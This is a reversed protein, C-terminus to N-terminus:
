NSVYNNRFITEVEEIESETKERNWGLEQSMISACNEIFDLGPDGLTGAETRRFIVDSLKLAMEKRISHVIEAKTILSTGYVTKGLKQDEIIYRLVEIYATGYNHILHYITKNSIGNTIKRTEYNIFESLNEINGGYVPTCRTNSKSPTKESKGIVQKIVKESVDRATTLKVGLVTILGHIGEDKEHDYIKYQKTLVVDNNVTRKDMPLLGGYIYRVDERSLKIDTNCSNFDNILNCVIEEEVKFKDPQGEYPLHLTGIISCNRWPLVILLRSRTNSVTNDDNLLNQTNIALANKPCFKSTIINLAISPHFRKEFKTSKVLALVKDIWPGAANVTIKARIDFVKNDIEDEVTVGKVINNNELFGTVKLYNAIDAGSKEASLLFSLLLRESNYVYCDYWIAGGTLGQKRVEPFLEVCESRSIVKGCPIRKQPDNSKNRDLSILDNLLLAVAMVSKGKKVGYTPMLFPTPHVLHPAIRMLTRREKISERMRKFDLHQLYRLGGHITKLSNSSTANGFDGKEVLAVSLGRQVGEWAICAGYIGGGIILLDYEKNSLQQLDRKM